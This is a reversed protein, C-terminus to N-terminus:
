VSLGRYLLFPPDSNTDHPLRLPLGIQEKLWNKALIHRKAVVYFTVSLCVSLCVIPFTVPDGRKHWIENDNCCANAGCCKAHNWQIPWGRFGGPLRLCRRDAQWVLWLVFRCLRCVDSSLCVVRQSLPAVKCLVTSWISPMTLWHSGDCWKTACFQFKPM